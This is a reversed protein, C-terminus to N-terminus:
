NIIQVLQIAQERLLIVCYYNSFQTKCERLNDNGSKLTQKIIQFALVSMFAFCFVDSLSCITVTNYEM